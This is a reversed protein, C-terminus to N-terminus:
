KPPLTCNDSTVPATEVLTQSSSTSSSTSTSPKERLMMRGKFTHHLNYDRSQSDQTLLWADILHMTTHYQWGRRNGSRSPLRMLPFGMKLHMRVVKDM